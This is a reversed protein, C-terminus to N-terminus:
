LYNSCAQNGSSLMLSSSGSDFISNLAPALWCSVLSAVWSGEGRQNSHFARMEAMCNSNQYLIWLTPGNERSTHLVASKFIILILLVQVTSLILLSSSFSWHEKCEACPTFLYAMFAHSVHLKNFVPINRQNKFLILHFSEQNWFQVCCEEKSFM